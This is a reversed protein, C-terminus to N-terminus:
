RTASLTYSFTDPGFYNAAPVYQITGDANPTATGHAPATAISTTIPTDSLHNDNTRVALATSSDEAVTFTDPNAVPAVNAVTSTTNSTVTRPSTGARFALTASNALTASADVDVTITVTGTAGIALTGLNWTVTRTAAAYTGGGSASVFTVGAPLVDTLVALYAPSTGTNAYDLTFTLSNGDLTAPASKTLTVAPQGGAQACPSEFISNLVLRVGNARNNTSVPTTVSYQHGALYTVRGKTTDGDLYGSLWLVRGANTLTTPFNNQNILIQTNPRFDTAANGLGISDLSGTDGVLAGHYQTLLNDPQRNVLSQGPEPLNGNVDEVIGGGGTTVFGGNANDEFTTAALCEMFAHTNPSSNLWARVERVVENTIAATANGAYHMSTVHCYNQVGGRNLAGDNTGDVAGRIETEDLEDVSNSAWAIGTSDPIGADVSNSAWAIGTSDPIGAANLDNYAIAENGDLFVAIKPAATLTRRVDAAFSGSIIEHVTTPTAGPDSAKWANIVPIAAAADAAAIVFPGGRYSAPLAVLAGSGTATRARIVTPATITFDIGQDAKGTLAVWQVPVNNQLLRYVLGYARFMGTDQYTTDMPIILSGAGFTTVLSQPATGVTPPVLQADDNSACAGVVMALLLAFLKRM